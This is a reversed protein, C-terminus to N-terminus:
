ESPKMKKKLQLNYALTSRKRISGVQVDICLITLAKIGSSESQIWVGVVRREGWGGVSRLQIGTSSQKLTLHKEYVGTWWSCDEEPNLLELLCLGKLRAGHCCPM